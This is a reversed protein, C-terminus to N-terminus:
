NKQKPAKVSERVAVLGNKPGPVAGKLLLVNKGADVKVVELNLITVNEHGYQGAMHLGKIVKSPTSNAGTSGLSRHVPGTGHTMKLRHQNWRKIAGSFGKGKTVGSVDVHDGAAFMECTITAGIEYEDDYKFEKIYKKPGVNAKKFAGAEPKGVKKEPLDEFAVVTAKYGDSEVTKNRLVTMPGAEIVTVPIMIGTEDFIQTMGLKKGLIAKKM